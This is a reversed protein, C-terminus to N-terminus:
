LVGAIVFNNHVIDANWTTALAFFIIVIWHPFYLVMASIVGQLFLKAPIWGSGIEEMLLRIFPNAEYGAGTNLAMTTSVIDAIGVLNYIVVLYLALRFRLRSRRAQRADSALGPKSESAKNRRMLRDTGM